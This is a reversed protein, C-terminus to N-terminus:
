NKLVGMQAHDFNSEFKVCYKLRIEFWGQYFVQELSGAIRLIHLGRLSRATM